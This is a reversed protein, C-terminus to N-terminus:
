FTNKKYAQFAQVRYILRKVEGDFTYTGNEHIEELSSNEVKEDKNSFSLYSDKEYLNVDGPNVKIIGNLTCTMKCSKDALSLLGVIKINIKKV